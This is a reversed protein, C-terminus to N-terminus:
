AHRQSLLFAEMFCQNTSKCKNRIFEVTHPALLVKGGTRTDKIFSSYVQAKLLFLFLNSVDTNDGHFAPVLDSRTSASRRPARPKPLNLGPFASAEWVRQM